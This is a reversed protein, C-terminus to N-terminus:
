EMVLFGRGEHTFGADHVTVINPHTSAAGLAQCERLLRAADRDDLTDMLVKVAVQRSFAPQRALYVDGFAGRGVLEGIEYGPVVPASLRRSGEGSRGSGGGDDMM